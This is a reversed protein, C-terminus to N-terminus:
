QKIFPIQKESLKNNTHLFVVLKQINTKCEAVKSFKNIPELMTKQHDKPNKKKTKKDKQWKEPREWLM